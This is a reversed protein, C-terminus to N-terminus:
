KGYSEFEKNLYNLIIEETEEFDLLNGKKDRAKGQLLRAINYVHIKIDSICSKYGMDFKDEEYTNLLYEIANILESYSGDKIKKITKKTIM